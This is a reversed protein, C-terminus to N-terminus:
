AACSGNVTRIQLYLHRNRDNNEGILLAADSLRGGGISNGVPETTPALTNKRDVGVRLARQAHKLLPGDSVPRAAARVEELPIVDHGILIPLRGHGAVDIERENLAHAVARVLRKILHGKTMRDVRGDLPVAEVSDRICM